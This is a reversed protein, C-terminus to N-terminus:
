TVLIPFSRPTSARSSTVATHGVQAAPPAPPCLIYPSLKLGGNGKKSRVCLNSSPPPHWLPFPSYLPSCLRNPGCDQLPCLAGGWISGKHDEFAPMAKPNPNLARTVTKHPHVTPLAMSLLFLHSTAPPLRLTVLFPVLPPSTDPPKPNAATRTPRKTMGRGKGKRGEQQEDKKVRRGEWGKERKDYRNEGTHRECQRTTKRKGIRYGRERGSQEGAASPWRPACWTPPATADGAQWSGSCSKLDFSERPGM